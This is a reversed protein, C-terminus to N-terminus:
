LKLEVEMLVPSRSTGHRYSVFDKTPAELLSFTLDWTAEQQDHGTSRVVWGQWSPSVSKKEGSLSYIQLNKM